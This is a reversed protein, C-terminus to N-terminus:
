DGERKRGDSQEEGEKRTLVVEGEVMWSPVGDSWLADTAIPLGVIELPGEWHKGRLVGKFTSMQGPKVGALLGKETLAEYVLIRNRSFDHGARRLQELVVQIGRPVVLFSIGDAVFLQGPVKNVRLFGKTVARRVGDLFVAAVDVIEDQRIGQGADALMTGFLGWNGEPRLYDFVEKAVVPTMDNVVEKAGLFFSAFMLVRGAHPASELWTVEPEPGGQDSLFEDFTKHFPEWVAENVTVRVTCLLPLLYKLCGAFFLGLRVYGEFAEREHREGPALRHWLTTKDVVPVAECGAAVGAAVLTMAGDADSLKGCCATLRNVFPGWAGRNPLLASVAELDPGPLDSGPVSAAAEVVDPEVRKGRGFM